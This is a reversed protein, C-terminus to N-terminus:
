LFILPFFVQGRKMTVVKEVGEELRDIATDIARTTSNTSVCAQPAHAALRTPELGVRLVM